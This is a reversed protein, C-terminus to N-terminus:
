WPGIKRSDLVDLDPRSEEQTLYRPRNVVWGPPGHAGMLAREADLAEKHRRLWRADEAAQLVYAACLCPPAAPRATSPLRARAERAFAHAPRRRVGEGREFRANFRALNYYNREEVSGVLQYRRPVPRPPSPTSPLPM